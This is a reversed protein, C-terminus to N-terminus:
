KKDLDLNLNIKNEKLIELFKNKNNIRKLVNLFDNTLLQKITKKDIKKRIYEKQKNNLWQTLIDTVQNKTIKQNEPNTIVYNFINAVTEPYKVEDPLKPYKISVSINELGTEKKMKDPWNGIDKNFESILFMDKINNVNSINWNSIDQNFNSTSFMYSMDTVNSVNWKSIDQNFNSNYFMGYMDTVNSTNWNSIDQNFSSESFMFLMNTVNSVDWNEIPRNFKGYRFMSEMNTVNSVNWQSINGNFEEFGFRDSFLGSMDTILSTDICNLDAKWNPKNKTGQVEYIEKKIAEVLEEKTKPKYKYKM